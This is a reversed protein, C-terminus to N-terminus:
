QLVNLMARLLPGQPIHQVIRMLRM